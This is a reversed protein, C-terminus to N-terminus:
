RVCNVPLPNDASYPKFCSPQGGPCGSTALFGMLVPMSTSVQAHVVGGLLVLALALIYKRM